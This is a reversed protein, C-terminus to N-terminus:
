GMKAKLWKVFVPIGEELPTKPEYGFHERARTTDAYTGEVDGPQDPLREIVPERGCAEGVLEIM